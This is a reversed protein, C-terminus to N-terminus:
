HVPVLVVRRADTPPRRLLIRVGLRSGIVRRIEPNHQQVEVRLLRDRPEADRHRRGQCGPPGMLYMRLLIPNKRPVSHAASVRFKTRGRIMGPLGVISMSALNRWCLMVGAVNFASAIANPM